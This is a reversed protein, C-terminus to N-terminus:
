GHTALYWSAQAAGTDIRGPYVVGTPQLYGSCVINGTASITGSWIGGNVYLGASSYLGYSGHSALFWSSQYGTTDARGPYIYGQTNLNGTLNTNGAVWFSGGLYLGTNSYLGYNFNSALYYSTQQGSADVRGPYMLGTSVIAGTTNIGNVGISAGTAAVYGTHTVNGNREFTTVGVGGPGPWAGADDTSPTIYFLGGNYSLLHWVQLNAPQSSDGMRIRSYGNGSLILEMSSTTNRLTQPSATITNARDTFVVGPCVLGGPITLIGVRTLTMEASALATEADTTAQFRLTGGTNIIRFRRVDVAQSLDEFTIGPYFPGAPGSTRSIIQQQTFVNGINKLPVNPSLRADALTGSLLISASLTTIADTGGPEHQAHHPAANNGPIGQPGTPGTPGQPGTDGQPGTPGTAGTNGIPGVPGLPGPVGQPGTPGPNGQPGAPGVPGQTLPNWIPVWETTAPDPPTWTQATVEDAM